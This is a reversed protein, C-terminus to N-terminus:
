STIESTSENSVKIYYIGTDCVSSTFPIRLNRFQEIIEVFRHVSRTEIM